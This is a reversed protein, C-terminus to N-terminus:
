LLHDPPVASRCARNQTGWYCQYVVKKSLSRNSRYHHMAANMAPGAKPNAEAITPEHVKAPKNPPNPTCTIEQQTSYSGTHEVNRYVQSTFLTHMNERATHQLDRYVQSTFFTHMNERATHQLNRYVQSTFFTHMNERATHQINRYVQCTFFTHMNERATHQLNRYVQCTFFTHMNERATHQLYRHAM